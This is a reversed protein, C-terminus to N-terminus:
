LREQLYRDCINKIVDDSVPYQENLLIELVIKTIIKFLLPSSGVECFAAVDFITKGSPPINNQFYDISTKLVSDVYENSLGKFVTKKNYSLTNEYIETNTDSYRVEILLCKGGTVPVYKAGLVAYYSAHFPLLLEITFSRSETIHRTGAKLESKLKNSNSMILESVNEFSIRIRKTKDLELLKM